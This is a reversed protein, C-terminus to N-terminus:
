EGPTLANNEENGDEGAYWPARIRTSIHAYEGSSPAPIDLEQFRDLGDTVAGADPRQM